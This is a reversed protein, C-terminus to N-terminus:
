VPYTITVFACEDAIRKSRENRARIHDHVQIRTIKRANVRMFAFATKQM